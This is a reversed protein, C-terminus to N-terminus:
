TACFTAYTKWSATKVTNKETGRNGAVFLLSRFGYINIKGTKLIQNTAHNIKLERPDITSIAKM